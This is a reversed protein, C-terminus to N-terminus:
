PAVRYFEGVDDFINSDGGYKMLFERQKATDPLLRVMPEEASSHRPDLFHPAQRAVVGAGTQAKPSVHAVRLLNTEVVVKVVLHLPQSTIKHLLSASEEFLPSLDLFRNTGVQFLVATYQETRQNESNRYTLRYHPSASPLQPTSKEIQWTEHDGNQRFTGVLREDTVVDQPQYFARESTLCGSILLVVPLVLACSKIFNM